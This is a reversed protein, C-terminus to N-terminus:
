HVARGLLFAALMALLTILIVAAGLWTVPLRTEIKKNLDQIGKNMANLSTLIKPFAVRCYGALLRYCAALEEVSPNEPLKLDPPTPTESDEGNSNM